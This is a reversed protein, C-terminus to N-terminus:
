PRSRQRIRGTPTACLDPNSGHNNKNNNNYNNNNKIRPHQSHQQQQQQHATQEKANIARSEHNVVGISPNSAQKSAQKSSRYPPPSKTVFPIHIHINSTKGRGV